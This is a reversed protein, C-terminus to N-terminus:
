ASPLDGAFRVRRFAGDDFVVRNEAGFQGTKSMMETTDARGDAAMM